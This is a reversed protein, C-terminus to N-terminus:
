DPPFRSISIGPFADSMRQLVVSCYQPSIEVGYCKRSLNQAAVMTTGTGSFPEYVLENKNTFTEIFYAPFDVPFTAAHVASFDNNRQPNGTYVNHVMGRFDRTGVARSGNGGFILIFEFRSDMVRKAAAPAAHQKDWIAVDCFVNSYKHWYQIFANKNGSLVQINCFLYKSCSLAVDTFGSLLALYDVDSKNDDYEDKYLNDNISTNGRLQASVGANYPPSTFTIDAKEGGMLKAVTGGDTCDGCILRHAGIEFLEGPQVQWKEQLEAARDIQPEADASEGPKESELLNGLAGVDRKWDALTEQSFGWEMLDPADWGSLSDWDWSGVAGAHLTIVLEKREDETLARSSQRADVQYAKGYVTLLASLRQHGDLVNGDPDVAITQVQGFKEWSELLKRAQKKTSQRPNQTWPKLDGLKITTNTWVIDSMKTGAEERGGNDVGDM